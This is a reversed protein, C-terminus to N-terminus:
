EVRSFDFLKGKRLNSRSRAIFCAAAIVIGGMFCDDLVTGTGASSEQSFVEVSTIGLYERGHKLLRFTVYTHM